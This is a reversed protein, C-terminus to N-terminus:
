CVVMYQMLLFFPALCAMFNIKCKFAQGLLLPYIKKILSVITATFGLGPILGLVKRNGLLHTAVLVVAGNWLFNFHDLIIIPIVTCVELLTYHM